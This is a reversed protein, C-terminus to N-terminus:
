SDNFGKLKIHNLSSFTITLGPHWVTNSRLSLVSMNLHVSLRTPCAEATAAADVHLFANKSSSLPFSFPCKLHLTAATLDSTLLTQLDKLNKKGESLWVQLTCSWSSSSLM